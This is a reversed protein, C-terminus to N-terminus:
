RLVAALRATLPARAPHRGDGLEDLARQLVETDAVVESSDRICMESGM